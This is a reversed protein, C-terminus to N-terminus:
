VWSKLCVSWRVQLQRLALMTDPTEPLANCELLTHLLQMLSAKNASSTFPSTLTEVVARMFAPSSVLAALAADGCSRHTFQLLWLAWDLSMVGSAADSESRWAPGVAGVVFRFGYKKSLKGPKRQHMDKKNYFVWRGM